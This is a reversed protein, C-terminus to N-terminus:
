KMPAHVPLAPCEYSMSILRMVQRVAMAAIKVDNRPRIALDNHYRSNLM